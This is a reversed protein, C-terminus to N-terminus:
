KKALSLLSQHSIIIIVNLANLVVVHLTLYLLNLFKFSTFCLASHVLWRM